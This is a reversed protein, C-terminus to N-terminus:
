TARFELPCSHRVFEIGAQLTLRTNESLLMAQSVLHGIKAKLQQLEAKALRLKEESEALRVQTDLLDSSTIESAVKWAACCVNSQSLLYKTTNHFEIENSLMMSLVADSNSEM